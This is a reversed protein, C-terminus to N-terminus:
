LDSAIYFLTFSAAYSLRTDLPAHQMVHLEEEEHLLQALGDLIDAQGLIPEGFWGDEIGHRTEDSARRIADRFTTYADQPIHNSRIHQCVNGIFFEMTDHEAQAEEFDMSNLVADIPVEADALLGSRLADLCAFTSAIAEIRVATASIPNIEPFVETFGHLDWAESLPSILHEPYEPEYFQPM